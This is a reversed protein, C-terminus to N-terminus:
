AVSWDVYAGANNTQGEKAIREANELNISVHIVDPGGSTSHELTVHHFPLGSNLRIWDFVGRLDAWGEIEFDAACYMPTAIHESHLNGHCAENAEPRRDGSTVRLPQVFQSRIPELVRQCLHRFIDLCEEPMPGSHEFESRKFNASLQLEASIAEM